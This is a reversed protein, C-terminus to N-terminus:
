GKSNHDTMVLTKFDEITHMIFYNFELWPIQLESSVKYLSGSIKHFRLIEVSKSLQYGLM